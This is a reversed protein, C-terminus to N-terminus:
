FKFNLATNVANYESDGRVRDYGLAVSYNKTLAYEAGVRWTRTQDANATDFADRYRWAAKVSLADTVKYKVGPEVSYYSYDTSTKFKEGAAVRAYTSLGSFLPAAFTLGVEARTDKLNYDTDTKQRLSLDLKTNSGLDTGVTVKISRADADGNVGDRVGYEVGGFGGAFATSSILMALVLVKKM